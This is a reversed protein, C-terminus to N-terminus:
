RPYDLVQSVNLAAHLSHQIKGLHSREYHIDPAGPRGLVIRMCLKRTIVKM